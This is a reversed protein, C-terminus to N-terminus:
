DEEHQAREMESYDRDLFAKQMRKVQEPSLEKLKTEPKREAEAREADDMMMQLEGESIGAGFVSPRNFAAEAAQQARKKRLAEALEENSPSNNYEM